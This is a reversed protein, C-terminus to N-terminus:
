SNRNKYWKRGLKLKDFAEDTLSHITEVPVWKNRPDNESFPDDTRVDIYEFESPVILRYAHLFMRYPLIDRRNSYTFDGVITHGSESLHVRLQHRRGTIPKLLLKTAPYGDYLGKQLVLLRTHATKCHGAYRRLPTAMKIGYWEERTDNGIPLYIDLMEKSVHGRVLALYYKDVRKHVFCKAVAAAASRHLAVCLLGSTSFDLRHAFRFEHGLKQSALHPFLQRLQTQVTVEDVSSDSNILVDYRKNVVIYHCSQHVIEIDTIKPPVNHGLKQRFLHCLSKSVRWVFQHWAKCVMKEFILVATEDLGSM